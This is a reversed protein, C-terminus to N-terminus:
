KLSTDSELLHPCVGDFISKLYGLYTVAEAKTQETEYALSSRYFFFQMVNFTGLLTWKSEYKVNRFKRWVQGIMTACAEDHVTSHNIPVGM